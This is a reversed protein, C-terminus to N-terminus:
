VKERLSELKSKYGLVNGEKISSKEQKKDSQHAVKRKKM